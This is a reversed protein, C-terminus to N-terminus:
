GVQEEQSQVIRDIKGAIIDFKENM